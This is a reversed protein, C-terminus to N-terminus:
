RENATKNAFRKLEFLQELSKPVYQGRLRSRQLRTCRLDSIAARMVSIQMASEKELALRPSDASNSIFVV